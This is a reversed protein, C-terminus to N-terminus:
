VAVQGHSYIGDITRKKSVRPSLPRDVPIHGGPLVPTGNPAHSLKLKAMLKGITACEGPELIGAPQNQFFSWVLGLARSADGQTPSGVSNVPSTNELRLLPFTPSSVM